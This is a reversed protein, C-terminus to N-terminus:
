EHLCGTMYRSALITIGAMRHGPKFWGRHQGVLSDGTITHGAV